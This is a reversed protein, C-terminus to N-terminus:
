LLDLRISCERCYWDKRSAFLVCAGSECTHKCGPHVHPVAAGARELSEREWMADIEADTLPPEGFLEDGRVEDQERLERQLRFGYTDPHDPYAVGAHSV